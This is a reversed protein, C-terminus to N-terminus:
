VTILCGHIEAQILEEDTRQAGTRAVYRGNVESRIKELLAPLNPAVSRAVEAAREFQKLEGLAHVQLLRAV